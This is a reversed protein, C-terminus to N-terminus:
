IDSSHFWFIALMKPVTATSLLLDALALMSLFLYMPEHLSRETMILFVLFINGTVAVIYMFCIPISIWTHLAELGSIGILVYWM